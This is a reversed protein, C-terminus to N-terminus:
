KVALGITTACFCNSLINTTLKASTPIHIENTYVHTTNYPEHIHILVMYTNNHHIYMSLM